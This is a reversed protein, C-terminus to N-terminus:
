KGKGSVQEKLQDERETGEKVRWELEVVYDLGYLALVSAGGSVIILWLTKAIDYNGLGILWITFPVMLGLIGLVYAAVRPLERGKLIKRWPFYHLFAESIVVLAVMAAINM